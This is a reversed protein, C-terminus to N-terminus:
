RYGNRGQGANRPDAYYVGVRRENERLWYIDAQTPPVSMRELVRRNEETAPIRWEFYNTYAAPRDRIIGTQAEYVVCLVNRENDLLRRLMDSMKEM